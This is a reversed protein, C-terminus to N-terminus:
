PDAAYRRRLRALLADGSSRIKFVLGKDERIRGAVQKFEENANEARITARMQAKEIWGAIIDLLGLISFVAKFAALVPIAM